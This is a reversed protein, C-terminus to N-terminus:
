GISTPFATFSISSHFGSRTVLLPSFFNYPHLIARNRLFNGELSSKKKTNTPDVKYHHMAIGRSASQVRLRDFMHTFGAGLAIRDEINVNDTRSSSNRDIYRSPMNVNTLPLKKMWSWGVIKELDSRGNLFLFVKESLLKKKSGDPM